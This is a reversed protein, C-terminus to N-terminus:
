TRSRGRQSIPERSPAMRSTFRARVAYGDLYVLTQSLSGTLNLFM